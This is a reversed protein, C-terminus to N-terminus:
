PMALSSLERISIGYTECIHDRLARKAIAMEAYAAEEATEHSLDIVHPTPVLAEWTQNHVAAAQRVASVLHHAQSSM